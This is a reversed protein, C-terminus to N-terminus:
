SSAAGAAAVPNEASGRTFRTDVKVQAELLYFTALLAWPMDFGGQSMELAKKEAERLPQQRAIADSVKAMAKAWWDISYFDTASAPDTIGRSRLLRLVNDRSGQDSVEKWFDVDIDALGLRAIASDDGALVTKLARQGARIFDTSTRGRFVALSLTRDLNLSLYIAAAGTQGSGQNTPTGLAQLVNSFERLDHPSPRAKRDYFVMKFTFDPSRPSSAAATTIMASRLLAERLRDSDVNNEVIKIDTSTLVVDGTLPNLGVKTKQVFSSVDSFNLIGLLHITLEHKATLTTTTITDIERVGALQSSPNTLGTFDGRLAALVVKKGEDDLSDLNIEYNFLRNTEKSRILAEHVSAQIGSRMASQLVDRMQGSLDSQADAPLSQRIKTLEGVAEPTVHEVVFTLADFSAVGASVGVSFDLGTEVEAKTGLTAGLRIKNGGLAAITLRHTDDHEVTASITAGSQAKINLSQSIFDLPASALSNNLISYAFSATFKLIGKGELCCIDGEPMATLDPLTRPITLGFIAKQVAEQLPTTEAAASYNTVSVEAGATLGFTVAGAGISPGSELKAAITFAVLDSSPSPVPRIASLFERAGDGNLLEVSARAGGSITWTEQGIPFSGPGSASLEMPFTDPSLDKLPKNQAAKFDSDIHDFAFILDKDLIETVGAKAEAITSGNQDVLKIGSM